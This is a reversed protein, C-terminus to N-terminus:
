RFLSNNIIENIEAQKEAIELELKKQMDYKQEICLVIREQEDKSLDPIPFEQLISPFINTNNGLGKKHMEILYQFYTCRMYYYAFMQNYNTLRIRMTFDAFVGHTENNDIIAVKGITGEGSRAMIIDNMKVTKIQKNDFYSKKVRNADASNFRWNKITAMSIYYHEGNNCYDDPSISEGLIIPESLYDKIKKDTIKQLESKVFAGVERHYKVSFRLDKNNSFSRLDTMYPKLARLTTFKKINFGLESTFVEDIITQMPVIKEKLRNTKEEIISIKNIIQHQNTRLTDIVKKEFKLNILDRESLTPYGKGQRAVAIIDDIFLWKLCYYLLKPMELARILIFAKTFYISSNKSTIFIFKGLNPRVKSILIDNENVSIIDGKEIKRYYNDDLLNREDFNLCVPNVEGGTTTDGIECYLFDGDLEEFPFSTKESFSFLEKFSYTDNSHEYQSKHYAFDYRFSQEDALESLNRNLLKM